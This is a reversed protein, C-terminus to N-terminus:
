MEILFLLFARVEIAGLYAGVGVAGIENVVDAWWYPGIFAVFYDCGAIVPPEGAADLLSRFNEVVAEKENGIQCLKEYVGTPFDDATFRSCGQRYIYTELHEVFLLLRITAYDIPSLSLISSNLPLNQFPSASALALLALFFLM